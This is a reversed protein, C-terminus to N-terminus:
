GIIRPWDYRSYLPNDKIIIEKNEFKHGIEFLLWNIEDNTVGKVKLFM